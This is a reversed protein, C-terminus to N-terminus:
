RELRELEEKVEKSSLGDLRDLGLKVVLPYYHRTKQISLGYEEDLDLDLRKYERGLSSALEDDLYVSHNTWSSKINVTKGNKAKKERDDKGKRRENEVPDSEEDDFRRAFRDKVSDGTEDSM